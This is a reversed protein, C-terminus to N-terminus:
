FPAAVPHVAGESSSTYEARVKQLRLNSACPCTTGNGFIARYSYACSRNDIPVPPNFTILKVFNGPMDNSTSSGLNTFSVPSALFDDQCFEYVVLQLDEAACSDDGWFRVFTLAAGNHLQLQGEAMGDNSTGHCYIDGDGLSYHVFADTRGNFQSGLLATHNTQGGAAPPAPSPDELPPEIGRSWLYSATEPEFSGETWLYVAAGDSFGMTRLLEPDTVAVREDAPIEASGTRTGLAAALGCFVAVLAALKFRRM